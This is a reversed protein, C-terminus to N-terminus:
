ETPLRELTSRLMKLSLPKSIFGHVERYTQARIMDQPDISSTLMHLQTRRHLKRYSELFDWGDMVPMNIDLFIVNPWPCTHSSLYALAAEASQFSTIHIREDLRKIIAEHIMNTMEDDDILMIWLDDYVGFTQDPSM